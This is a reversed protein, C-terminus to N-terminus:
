AVVGKAILFCAYPREDATRVTCYAGRALDYFRPRGVGAFGVSRQEASDLVAGVGAAAPGHERDDQLMHWAAPEQFADVPMLTLVASIVETVGAGPLEVV